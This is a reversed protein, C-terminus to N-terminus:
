EKPKEGLEILKDILEGMDSEGAGIAKLVDEREAKPDSAVKEAVRSRFVSCSKKFAWVQHSGFSIKSGLTVGIVISGPRDVVIKAGAAAKRCKEDAGMFGPWSDTIFTEHEESPAGGSAYRRTFVLRNGGGCRPATLEYVVPEGSRTSELLCFEASAPLASFVVLAAALLSRPAV